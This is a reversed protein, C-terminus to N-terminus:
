AGVFTHVFLLILSCSHEDDGLSCHVTNDCVNGLHICTKTANRCKFMNKCIESGNGSSFHEDDGDPCDWKMDHVYSWYICYSAPCKFAIGCDFHKCNELHAGNECPFLNESDDLVFLCTDSIKYSQPNHKSCLIQVTGKTLKTERVGTKDSIVYQECEGITNKHYLPGCNFNSKHQGIRKIKCLHNYNVRLDEKHKCYCFLEDSNDNPCDYKGDCVQMVHIYGKNFCYFINVGALITKSNEQCVLLGDAESINTEKVSIRESIFDQEHSFLNVTQHQKNHLSLIPIKSSLPFLMSKVFDTEHSVFLPWLGKRFEFCQRDFATNRQFQPQYWLVVFCNKGKYLSNPPCVCPRDLIKVNVTLNSGQTRATPNRIQCLIQVLLKEECNINIWSSQALNAMLLLTCTKNAIESPYLKTRAEQKSKELSVCSKQKEFVPADKNSHCYFTIKEDPELDTKRFTQFVVPAGIEWHFVGQWHLLSFMVLGRLTICGGAMDVVESLCRAM